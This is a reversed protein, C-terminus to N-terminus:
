QAAAVAVNGYQPREAHTRQRAGAQSQDATIDLRRVGAHQRAQDGTMVSDILRM